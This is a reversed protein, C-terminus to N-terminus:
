SITSSALNTPTKISLVSEHFFCTAWTFCHTEKLSESRRLICLYRVLDLIRSGVLRLTAWGTVHRSRSIIETMWNNNLNLLIGDKPGLKIGCNNYLVWWLIDSQPAPHLSFSFTMVFNCFFAVRSINFASGNDDLLSINFFYQNENLSNTM